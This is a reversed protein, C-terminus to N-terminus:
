LGAVEVLTTGDLRQREHNQDVAKQVEPPVVLENNFEPLMRLSNFWTNVRPHLRELPYGCRVLRNLYIVWAIDLVTIEEGMLNKNDTLLDNLEDIAARFKNTSIRIADDTIGVDAATEWFKLEREKAEDIEGGVQGSGRNRYNQLTEKSRPEKGRPHTYRFTLTRLDLHLDDEHRLLDVIKDKQIQPVLKREPFREDLLVIIDNSEIHVEGDHILTPVLGRPNIGLYYESYNDGKGLDLHHSTWDINKLNLCIRTKQSCSSAMFHFLHMGKWDLVDKTLIDNEILRM